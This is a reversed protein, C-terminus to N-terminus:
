NQGIQTIKSSNQNSRMGSILDMQERMLRKQKVEEKEKIVFTAITNPLIDTILEGKLNRIALNLDYIKQDNITNLDVFIPFKSYYNITGNQTNSGLEERPIVSLLKVQEGTGGNYGKINFDLLEVMLAEERISILVGEESTFSNTTEGEPFDYLTKCGIAKSFNFKDLPVPADEPKIQGESIGIDTQQLAGM